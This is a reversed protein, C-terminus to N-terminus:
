NPINSFLFSLIQHQLLHSSKCTRRIRDGSKTIYYTADCNSRSEQETESIHGHSQFSTIDTYGVPGLAGDLAILREHLDQVFGVFRELVALYLRDVEFVGGPAKESIVLSMITMGADKLLDFRTALLSILDIVHDALPAKQLYSLLSQLLIKCARGENEERNPLLSIMGILRMVISCLSQSFEDPIESAECAPAGHCIDYTLNKLDDDDLSNFATLVIPLVVPGQGLVDPNFHIQEQELELLSSLIHAVKARTKYRLKVHKQALVKVLVEVADAKPIPWQSLLRTQDVLAEALTDIRLAAPFGFVALLRLLKTKKMAIDPKAVTETTPDALTEIAALFRDIIAEAHKGRDEIESIEGLLIEYTAVVGSLLCQLSHMAELDVFHKSDGVMHCAVARCTKSTFIEAQTESSVKALFAISKNISDKLQQQSVGMYSLLSSKRRDPLPSSPFLTSTSGEKKSLPHPQRGKGGNLAFRLLAAASCLASVSGQLVRQWREAQVFYRQASEAQSQEDLSSTGLDVSTPVDIDACAGILSDSILLEWEQSTRMECPTPDFGELANSYEQLKGRIRHASNPGWSEKASIKNQCEVGDVVLELSSVDIKFLSAALSCVSRHPSSPNDDENLEVDRLATIIRLALASHSSRLSESAQPTSIGSLSIAKELSKIHQQRAVEGLRTLISIAKEAAETASTETMGERFRCSVDLWDPHFPSAGLDTGTDHLRALADARADEDDEGDFDPYGGGDDDSEASDDSLANDEEMMGDESDASLSSSKRRRGGAGERIPKDGYSSLFEGTPRTYLSMLFSLYVAVAEGVALASSEVPDSMTDSLFGDTISAAADVCVKLTDRVARKPM